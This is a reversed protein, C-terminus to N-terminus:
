RDLSYKSIIKFNDNELTKHNKMYSSMANGFQYLNDFEVKNGEIQVPEYGSPGVSSMDCASYCGKEYNVEIGATRFHTLFLETSMRTAEQQSYDRSGMKAPQIGMAACFGKFDDPFTRTEGTELNQARYEMIRGSQGEYRKGTSVYTIIERTSNKM